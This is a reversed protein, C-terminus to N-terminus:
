AFAASRSIILKSRYHNPLAHVVAASVVTIAVFPILIEKPRRFLNLLDAPQLTRGATM